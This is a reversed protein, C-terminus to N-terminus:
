ILKSVEAESAGRGRMNNRGTIAQQERGQYNNNTRISRFRGLGRGRGSGVSNYIAQGKRESNGKNTDEALNREEVVLMSVFDGFSPINNRRLM